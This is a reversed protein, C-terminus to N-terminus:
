RGFFEFRCVGVLRITQTNRGTFRRAGSSLTLHLCTASRAALLAVRGCGPNMSASRFPTRLLPQNAFFRGNKNYPPEKAKM